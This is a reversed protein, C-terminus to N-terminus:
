LLIQGGHGAAAIRAARNVEFGGYDDGALHAEGSHLGMRVSIPTETPWPHASVTRQADIAALVAAGAEQFAGFFADGETRVCVGGHRDVARRILGLHTANARDWTEGHVRALAMSGEVDTRLFTVTGTPLQTRETTGVM